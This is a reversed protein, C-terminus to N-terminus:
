SGRYTAYGFPSLILPVHHNSAPDTIRFRIPISDYFGDQDPGRWAAIDFVIEYGGAELAAGALLPTACRGDADTRFRGLSRRRTGDLRFLELAMGSAPCGRATDLVHVSLRGGPEAAM